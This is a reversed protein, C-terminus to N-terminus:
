PLGWSGMGACCGARRQPAAGVKYVIEAYRMGAFPVGGTAMQWLMIGFSFVDCSPRMQGTLLLVPCMHTVQPPVAPSPASLGFPLFAAPKNTAVAVCGTCNGVGQWHRAASCRM